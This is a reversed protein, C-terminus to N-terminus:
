RTGTRELDAWRRRNGLIRRREPTMIGVRALVKAVREKGEVGFFRALLHGPRTPAFREPEGYRRALKLCERGLESYGEVMARSGEMRLIYGIRPAFEELRGLEALREALKQHVRVNSRCRKETFGGHSVSPTFEGLARYYAEGGAARVFPVGEALTRMMLDADDNFTIAEDWGGTREYLSRPWLVACPPVWIANLWGRLPDAAPDPLPVEPKVRRWEGAFLRLRRWPCYVLSGPNELAAEVLCEIADPRLVDDADLFMIFEGRALVAGANRARSGGGNREMRVAEVVGSYRGIAEWSLDTSADDVVIHEIAGYTQARVSEITEGIFDAANYCPTVVSVLPKM